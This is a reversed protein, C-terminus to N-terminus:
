SKGSVVTKIKTGLYELIEQEKKQMKHKVKRNHDDYGLLHLIGHIVYLVIEHGLPTKYAKANKIAVDTSIIIDGTIDKIQDARKHRLACGNEKLNFALV